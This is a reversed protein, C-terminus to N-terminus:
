RCDELSGTVVTQERFIEAQDSALPRRAQSDTLGVGAVVQGVVDIIVEIRLAQLAQLQKTTVGGFDSCQRGGRFHEESTGGLCSNNLRHRPRGSYVRELGSHREMEM